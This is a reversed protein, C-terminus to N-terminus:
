AIVSVANDFKNSATEAQEDYIHAYITATVMADRDGLRHAVVHLPEGLQLLETAHLYPLCWALFSYIKGM